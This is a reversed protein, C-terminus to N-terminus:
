FFFRCGGVRTGAQVLSCRSKIVQCNEFHLGCVSGFDYVSLLFVHASDVAVIRDFIVVDCRARGTVLSRPLHLLAAGVSLLSGCFALLDIEHLSDIESDCVSLCKVCCRSTPLFTVQATASAEFVIHPLPLM